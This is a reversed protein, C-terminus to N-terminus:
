VPKNVFIEFRSQYNEQTDHMNKATVESFHFGGILEVRNDNSSLGTCFEELTIKEVVAKQSKDM